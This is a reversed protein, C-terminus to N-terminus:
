TGACRQSLMSRPPQREPSMSGIQGAVVEADRTPFANRDAHIEVAARECRFVRVGAFLDSVHQLLGKLVLKGILLRDPEVRALRKENGCARWMRSPVDAAPLRRFERGIGDRVAGWEDNPRPRARAVRRRALSHTVQHNNASYPRTAPTSSRPRESRRARELNSVCTACAWRARVSACTTDPALQPHHAAGAGHRRCTRARFDAPECGRQQHRASDHCGHLQRDREAQDPQAVPALPYRTERLEHDWAM